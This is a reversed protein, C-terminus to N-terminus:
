GGRSIVEVDFTPKQQYVQGLNLDLFWVDQDIAGDVFSLIEGPMYAKITLNINHLFPRVTAAAGLQNIVGEMESGRLQAQLIILDQEKTLQATSGLFRRTFEQAAEQDPFNWVWAVIYPAGDEKTQIQVHQREEPSLKQYEDVAARKLQNFITYESTSIALRAAPISANSDVRIAVEVQACGALLMVVCVAIVVYLARKM